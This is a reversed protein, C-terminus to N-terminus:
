CRSPGWFSILLRRLSSQMMRLFDRDSIKVNGFSAGCSSRVSMRGLIWDMCTSFLTPALACAQRVGTVGPFLDSITGGCKVASETGSLLESMLDILKKHCGVFALFGGSPMRNVSDFAKCLDIYGALLGQRFERRRETLVPLALIRNITSMKPTFGSQEPRQHELLHHHIRDIIIWAFVKGQM